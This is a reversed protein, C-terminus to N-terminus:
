VEPLEVLVRVDLMWAGGAGLTVWPAAFWLSDNATMVRQGQSQLTIPHPVSWHGTAESPPAFGAGRLMVSEDDPPPGTPDAEQVGVNIIWAFANVTGSVPAGLGYDLTGWIARVTGPGDALAEFADPTEDTIFRTTTWVKEGAM